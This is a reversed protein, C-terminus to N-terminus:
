RMFSTKEFNVSDSQTKHYFLYIVNREKRDQVGSLARLRDRLDCVITTYSKLGHQELAREFDITTLQLGDETQLRVYLEDRVKEINGICKSYTRTSVKTDLLKSLGVLLSKVEAQLDEFKNKWIATQQSKAKLERIEELIDSM